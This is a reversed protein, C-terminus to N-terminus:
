PRAALASLLRQLRKRMAGERAVPWAAEVLRFYDGTTTAEHKTARKFADVLGVCLTDFARSRPRGDKDPVCKTAYRRAAEAMDTFKAANGVPALMARLVRPDILRPLDTFRPDVHFPPLSHGSEWRRLLKAIAAYDGALDLFELRATSWRWRGATAIHARMCAHLAETVDKEFENFRADTRRLGLLAGWRQIHKPVAEDVLKRAVDHITPKRQPVQDPTAGWM